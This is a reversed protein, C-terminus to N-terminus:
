LTQELLVLKTFLMNQILIRLFAQAGCDAVSCMGPQDWLSSGTTYLGGIWVSTLCKAGDGEWYCFELKM